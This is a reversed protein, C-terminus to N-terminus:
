SEAAREEQKVDRGASQQRSEPEDRHEAHEDGQDAPRNRQGDDAEAGEPEAHRQDDRGAEAITDPM